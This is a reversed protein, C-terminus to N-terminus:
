EPKLEYIAPGEKFVVTRYYKRGALTYADRGLDLSIIVQPIFTTLYIDSENAVFVHNIIRQGNNALLKYYPYDWSDEGIYLGIYKYDKKVLYDRCELIGPKYIAASYSTKFISESLPFVRHNNSFLSALIGFAVMPLYILTQLWAKRLQGVEMGLFVGYLIFLGTELRNSWPQWKLLLCFLFCTAALTFVYLSYYSLPERYLRKRCLFYVMTLIILITHLFNQAYDEHFTFNEAMWDITIFSYKPDNIDIGKEMTFAAIWKKSEPTNPFHNMINKVGIFFISKLDKGESATTKNINGFFDDTLFLNRYYLGSNILLAVLPVLSYRLAKLLVDKLPKKYERILPIIYWAVFLITFIYATGKTLFALGLSAGTLIVHLFSTQYGRLLMITMYVFAIIFFGAIVDNQTTNSEIIAMPILATILTSSLQQRTSGGLAKTVLSICILCNIYYFLQLSNALRDGHTLVQLHLIEWEAFPQSILQRIIHTPYNSINKNQVWHAVRAMHYTMSDYNNPPYILALLTSVLIIFLLPWSVWSMRFAKLATSSIDKVAQRGIRKYLCYAILAALFLLWCFLLPKFRILSYYSLAETLIVIFLSIGLTSLLVAKRFKTFAGTDRLHTHIVLFLIFWSLAPILAYLSM